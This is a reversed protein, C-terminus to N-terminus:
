RSQESRPRAADPDAHTPFEERLNAALAGMPHNRAVDQPRVGLAIVLEACLAECIAALVTSSVAPIVRLPEPPVPTVLALDAAKELPSGPSTLFAIIVVGKAALHRVTELLEATRGSASLAILVDGPRVTGIEGHLADLPNLQAAPVGITRLTAVARAAVYGSKGVGAVFVTGGGKTASHLLDLAPALGPEIVEAANRMGVAAAEIVARGAGRQTVM